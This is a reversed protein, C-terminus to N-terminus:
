VRPGTSSRKGSLKTVVVEVTTGQGPATRIALNAGIHRAREHMGALGWHDPKRAPDDLEFGSGDDQVALAVEERRYDVNVTIREPHGHSVANNLAERAIVFLNAQVDYPLERSRGTVEMEFGISSGDVMREGARRVAEALTTNELDALRMCSLAQRAERLSQDAQELATREISVEM